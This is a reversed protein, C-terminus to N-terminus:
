HRRHADAIGICGADPGVFLYGAPPMDGVGDVRRTARDQQLEPMDAADQVGGIEAAGKGNRRASDGGLAMDAKEARHAFEDDRTGKLQAFDRADDGVIAAAGPVGLAGAKVTDFDVAGVAVEQVLEQLVRRVM